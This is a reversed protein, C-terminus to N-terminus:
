FLNKFFQVFMGFRTQVNTEKYTETALVEKYGEFYEDSMKTWTCFLNWYPTDKGLKIFRWKGGFLKRYWRYNLFHSCWYLNEQNQLFIKNEM